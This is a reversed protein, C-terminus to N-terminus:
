SWRQAGGGAILIMSAIIPPPTLKFAWQATGMAQGVGQADHALDGNRLIRCPCARTSVRYEGGEVWLAFSPPRSGPPGPSMMAM